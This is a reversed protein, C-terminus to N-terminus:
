NDHDSSRYSAFSVCRCWHAFHECNNFILDYGRSGIAHQARYVIEDNPLPRLISDKSNNIYAISNSILGTFDRVEVQMPELWHGVLMRWITQCIQLDDAQM